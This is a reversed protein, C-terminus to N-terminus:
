DRRLQSLLIGSLILAGGAWEKATPTHGLILYAFLAAFVPELSFILATRNPTTFRQARNQVYFGLATALVGTIILYFSCRVDWVLFPPQDFIPTALSGAGACITVQLLVLQRYDSVPSYRGVFLIHLAFFVACILTLTDGYSFSLELRDLTLFGLGITALLIGIGTQLRPRHKFLLFGSIPVLLVSLSTIFASKSPTSSQLGLTQFIFGGLLLVALVTGRRLTERSIKRVARAMLPICVLTAIWFRLAIFLMPSVQALASKVITFTSGWIVTVLVLALDAQVSKPLRM